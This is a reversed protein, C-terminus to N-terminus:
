PHPITHRHHKNTCIIVHMRDCVKSRGPFFDVSEEDSAGGQGSTGGVNRFSSGTGSPRTQSFPIFSGKSLIDSPKSDVVSLAKASKAFPSSRIAVKFGRLFVTQDKTPLEEVLGLERRPGSNAFSSSTEWEWTCSGGASALQAAKLKL